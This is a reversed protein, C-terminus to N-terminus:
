CGSCWMLPLRRRSAAVQAVNGKHSLDHTNAKGQLNDVPLGPDRGDRGLSAVSRRARETLVGSPCSHLSHGLPATEVTARGTLAGPGDVWGHIVWTASTAAVCARCWEM